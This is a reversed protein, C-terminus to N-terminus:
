QGGAASLARAARRLDRMTLYYNPLEASRELSGNTIITNDAYGKFAEAAKAFPELAKEAAEARSQWHNSRKIFATEESRFRDLEAEQKRILAVLGGEGAKIQCAALSLLDGGFHQKACEADTFTEGCFFCTWRAEDATPNPTMAAEM